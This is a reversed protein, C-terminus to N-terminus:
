FKYFDSVSVVQGVFRVNINGVYRQSEFQVVTLQFFFIRSCFKFEFILVFFFAFFDTSISMHFILSNCWKCKRSNWNTPSEPFTNARSPWATQHRKWCHGRATLLWKLAISHSRFCVFDLSHLRVGIKYNIFLKSVRRVGYRGIIM